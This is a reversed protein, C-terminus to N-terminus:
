GSKRESAGKRKTGARRRLELTILGVLLLLWPWLWNISRRVPPDAASLLISPASIITDGKRKPPEPETAPKVPSQKLKSADALDNATVPVGSQNPRKEPKGIAPASATPTNAAQNPSEGSGPPNARTPPFPANAVRQPQSSPQSAPYGSPSNVSPM